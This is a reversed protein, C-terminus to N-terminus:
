HLYIQKQNQYYASSILSVNITIAADIAERMTKFTVRTFKSNCIVWLKKCKTKKVCGLNIENLWIVKNGNTCHDLQVDGTETKYTRRTM